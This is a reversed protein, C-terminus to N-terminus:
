AKVGSGGSHGGGVYYAVWPKLGGWTWMALLRSFPHKCNRAVSDKGM